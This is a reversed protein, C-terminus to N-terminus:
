GHRRARDAKPRRFILYTLFALFFDAVCTEVFRLISAANALMLKHVSGLEPHKKADWFVGRRAVVSHCHYYRHTTRVDSRRPSIVRHSEAPEYCIRLAYCSFREWGRTRHKSGCTYKSQNANHCRKSRNQASQDREVVEDSSSCVQPRAVRPQTHAPRVTASPNVGTQPWPVVIIRKKSGANEASHYHNSPRKKM